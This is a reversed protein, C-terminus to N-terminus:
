VHGLRQNITDSESKFLPVPFFANGGQHLHQLRPRSYNGKIIPPASIRTHNIILLFVIIPTALAHIHPLFLSYNWGLELVSLFIHFTCVSFGNKDTGSTSLFEQFAKWGGGGRSSFRTKPWINEDSVHYFCLYSYVSDHSRHAGLVPSMMWLSRLIFVAPNFLAPTCSSGSIHWRPSGFPCSTDRIDWHILDAGADLMQRCSLSRCELSHQAKELWLVYALRSNSYALVLPSAAHSASKWM